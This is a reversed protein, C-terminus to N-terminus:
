PEVELVERDRKKPQSTCLFKRVDPSLSDFWEQIVHDRQVASLAKWAALADKKKKDAKAHELRQAHVASPPTNDGADDGADAERPHIKFASHPRSMPKNKFYVSYSFYQM